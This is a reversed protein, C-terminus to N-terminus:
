NERKTQTRPKSELVVGSNISLKLWCQQWHPCSLESKHGPVLLWEAAMCKSKRGVAHVSVHLEAVVGKQWVSGVLLMRMIAYKFKLNSWPWAGAMSQVFKVHEWM